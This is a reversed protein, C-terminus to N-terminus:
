KTNIKKIAAFVKLRTSSMEYLENFREGYWNEDPEKAKRRLDFALILKILELKEDHENKKLTERM